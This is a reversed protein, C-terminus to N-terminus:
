EAENRSLRSPITIGTFSIIPIRPDIVDGNEDKLLNGDEDTPLDYNPDTVATLRVGEGPTLDALEDLVAQKECRTPDEIITEGNSDYIAENYTSVYIRVESNPYDTEVRFRKLGSLGSVSSNLDFTRVQIKNVEDTLANGEEDIGGACQTKQVVRATDPAELTCTEFDNPDASTNDRDCYTDVTAFEIQGLNYDFDDDIILSETLEPNNMVAQRVVPQTYGRAKFDEPTTQVFGFYPAEAREQISNLAAASKTISVSTQTTSTFPSYSMFLEAYLTITNELNTVAINRNSYACLGDDAAIGDAIQKKAQVFADIEQDSDTTAILSEMFDLPNNAQTVEGDVLTYNMFDSDNVIALIANLATQQDPTLTEGDALKLANLIDGLYLKYESGAENDTVVYNNVTLRVAEDQSIACLTSTTEFAPDCASITLTALVLAIIKRTNM